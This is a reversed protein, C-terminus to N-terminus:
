SLMGIQNKIEQKASGIKDETELVKISKAKSFEEGLQDDHASLESPKSPESPGLLRM